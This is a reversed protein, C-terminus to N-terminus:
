AFPMGGFVTIRLRGDRVVVVVSGGGDPLLV